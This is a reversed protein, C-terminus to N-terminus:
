TQSPLPGPGRDAEPGNPDIQDPTRTVTRRVRAEIVRRLQRFARGVMEKEPALVAGVAAKSLLTV